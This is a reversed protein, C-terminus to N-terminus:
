IDFFDPDDHDVKYRMIVNIVREQLSNDATIKRDDRSANDVNSKVANVPQGAFGVTTGMVYLLVLAAGQVRNSIKM